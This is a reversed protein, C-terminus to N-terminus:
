MARGGRMSSGQGPINKRKPIVTIQRGKFLSENHLKAKMAAEKTEFEIYAFRNM